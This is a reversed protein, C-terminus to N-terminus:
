FFIRTRKQPLQCSGVMSLHAFRAIGIGFSGGPKKFALSLSATSLEQIGYRQDLAIGVESDEIRDLSGVNNFLSWADQNYLKAAGLGLSKAGFAQTSLDIQASTRFPFM